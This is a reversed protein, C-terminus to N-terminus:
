SLKFRETRAMLALGIVAMGSFLAPLLFVNPLGLWAVGFGGTMGGLASALATSSMFIASATAVADPLLRQAVIIGLVMFIGWVGGMLIQGAFMGAASPWLAFCLNAFIGMAAAICMLWVNGLRRGLGISFPMILLEIFPQIGIVAGRVAPSLKLQEEMYILLFGYKVPEGAYVLVFLATFALLPLMARLGTHRAADGTQQPKLKGVPNLTGLPAIQLLLCIATMWLMPRLGYAAAVWAGLVPGVIWGGTLAMRIIAVVSENADGPKESLEDHVAAFIQSATAGSVALLVVALVFPVWVSTSLALGAWGLFGAVACVRFLGLRNGTRDSYRGVFYGAFPAALSTLYYFGALPLSAGLEKVLFPVIQPAAASTGLGSLFMAITAGLFFRSAAVQRLASQNGAREPLTVSQSGSQDSM